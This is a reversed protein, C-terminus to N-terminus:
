IGGLWSDMYTTQGKRTAKLGLCFCFLIVESFSRSGQQRRSFSISRAEWFKPLTAPLLFTLTCKCHQVSLTVTYLWFRASILAKWFIDRNRTQTDQCINVRRSLNFKDSFFSFTVRGKTIILVTLHETVWMLRLYEIWDWGCIVKPAVDM